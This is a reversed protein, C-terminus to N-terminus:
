YTHPRAWWSPHLIFSSPRRPSFFGKEGRPLLHGFAPHAATNNTLRKQSTKPM